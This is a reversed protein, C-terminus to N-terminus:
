YLYNKLPLSFEEANLAAFHNPRCTWSHQRAHDQGPEIGLISDLLSVSPVCDM